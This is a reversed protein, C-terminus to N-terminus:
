DEEDEDIKIIGKKKIDPMAFTNLLKTNPTKWDVKRNEPRETNKIYVWMCRCGLHLEGPSYFAYDPDNISIIRGDLSACLECIHSDLIGSWQAEEVQEEKLIDDVSALSFENNEFKIDGNFVKVALDRGVFLAKGELGRIILEPKQEKINDFLLNTKNILEQKSTGRELGDIIPLTVRTDTEALYSITIIDGTAKIWSNITDSLRKPNNFGLEASVQKLGFLCVIDLYDRLTDSFEKGFKIDLIEINKIENATIDSNNLIEKSENSYEIKQKEIIKKLEIIAQDGVRDLFEEYKAFNINKEIETLARKLPM